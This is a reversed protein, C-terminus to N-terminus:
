SNGVYRDEAQPLGDRIVFGGKYRVKGSLTGEWGHSSSGVTMYRVKRNIFGSIYRAMGFLSGKWMVFMSM